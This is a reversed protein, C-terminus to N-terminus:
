KNFFTYSLTIATVDKGEDDESISPDVFFSVPFEKSEGPLLLQETFCFCEIKNFYLGTTEPTVNFTATGTVPKNSMNHATFIITEENGIRDTIPRSPTVKWPLAGDVNSDFRVTMERDIVGKLNGTAVQTTGGLGTVRCLLDYLPVAAYSAGVMFAVFALCYLAVRRNRQLRKEDSLPFSIDTM